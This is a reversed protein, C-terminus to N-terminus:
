MTTELATGCYSRGLLTGTTLRPGFIMAKMAHCLSHLLQAIVKWSLMDEHQHRCAYQNYFVGQLLAERSRSQKSEQQDVAWGQTNAGQGVVLVCPHVCSYIM